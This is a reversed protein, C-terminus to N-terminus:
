EGTYGGMFSTLRVVVDGKRGWTRELSEVQSM